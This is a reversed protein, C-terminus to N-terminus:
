RLAAIESFSDASLVASTGLVAIAGFAPHANVFNTASDSVHGGADLAFTPVGAGALLLLDFKASVFQISKARPAFLALLSAEMQDSTAQRKDDVNLGTLQEDLISTPTGVVTVPLGKKSIISASQWPLVKPTTFLIPRQVAAIAGITTDILAVDSNAILIPAGPVLAAVASATSYRTTGTLSILSAKSMRRIAAILTPPVQTGVLYIKTVRRRAIEAVVRPDLFQSSTFMLPAKKTFSLPAAIAAALSDTDVVALVVSKSSPWLSKGIAISLAAEDAGSRRTVPRQLWTSPLALRSRFIEGKLTGSEGTSSIAIVSKVGGGQTRDPFGLSVVDPLGFAKAVSAQTVSRSWTAYKPNLTEDVSWPDAVAKLWVAPTGWVEGADQTHGGSSTFFYTTIPKGKYLVALGSSLDPSTAAVAAIWLLGWKPESEKAWGVYTLDISRGYLDCNCETRIHGAKTLAYTRAAIVQAELAAEPWSSPVEAVGRLYEDHLRLDNTIELRSGLLASKVSKIQIQGYRYRPSAAGGGLNILAGPGALYRTGSWRLTFTPASLTRTGSTTTGSAGTITAVVGQAVASLTLTDGIGISTEAVSSPAVGAPLDAASLRAIPVTPLAPEMTPPTLPAITPPTPTSIVPPTSTSPASPQPSLTPTPQTSPLPVASIPLAEVRIKTTLVQHLLNVRLNTEDPVPVVSTGTYFYQLIETASRGDLAMGEAGIQSMGVGHGLGAGTFTFTAPIDVAFAPTNASLALAGAILLAMTRLKIQM